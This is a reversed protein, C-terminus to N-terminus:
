LYSKRWGAEDVRYLSQLSLPPSVNKLNTNDKNESDVFHITKKTKETKDQSRLSSFKNFGPNQIETLSNSNIIKSSYVQEVLKKEIPTPLLLIKLDM